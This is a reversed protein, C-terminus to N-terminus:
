QNKIFLIIALTLNSLLSFFFFPLNDHAWASTEHGSTEVKVNYEALLSEM